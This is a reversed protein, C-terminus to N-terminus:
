NKQRISILLNTINILNNRLTEIDYKDLTPNKIGYLNIIFDMSLINNEKNINILIKKTYVQNNFIIKADINGINKNYFSNFNDNYYYLTKSTLTFLTAINNDDINVIINSHNNSTDTYNFTLNATENGTLKTSSLYPTTQAFITISLVLVTLCVLFLKKM